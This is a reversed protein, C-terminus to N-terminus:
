GDRNNGSNGGNNGGRDDGGGDDGGGGGGNNGINVIADGGNDGGDPNRNGLPPANRSGLVQGDHGVSLVFAVCNTIVVRMDPTRTGTWTGMMIATSCVFFPTYRMIRLTKPSEGQKNGGRNNGSNGGNNGGRDGRDGGGGDDGGGGGGNNGINVIADGGNDGGDPNRNGLPPANRDGLVQGDHGVSLVFAVCNTIVVRMNPTRTGTWTSMMIATSCVFFSYLANDQKNGGRNNGSNGGNNGGRDGRDGGGGDDGGGGGGNNGINVIADGGNDGGDPNRNGLPPANRSGLVQGDHHRKQTAATMEAVTEIAAAETQVRKGSNDGGNDGASFLTVVADGCPNPNGLAHPTKVTKQGSDNSFARIEREGGETRQM